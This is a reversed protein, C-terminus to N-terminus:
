TNILNFFILESLHNPVNDKAILKKNRKMSIQTITLANETTTNKQWNVHQLM